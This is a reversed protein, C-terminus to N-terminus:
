DVLTREHGNPCRGKICDFFGDDYLETTRWHDRCYSSHCAPCWFPAFESDIAYLRGADGSALAGVVADPMTMVGVTFSVPGGDISVSTYRALGMSIGPPAGAPEPTLRPDPEGQPVLTVTAARQGCAGCLYTASQDAM